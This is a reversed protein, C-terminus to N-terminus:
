RAILTGGSASTVTTNAYGTKKATVTVTLYKGKDAAVVKYTAAIAGSITTTPGSSSDARKWVYTFTVGANPNWGTTVATLTSGVTKIGTITPAPSSTFPLGLVVATTAGPSTVTTFGARTATVTVTLTTGIDASAPTYTALSGIVSTSGSRKWSYALTAGTAWSGAAAILPKGVQATGTITPAVPNAFVGVAVAASPDSRVVANTYGARSATVSVILYKGQDAAVPTYTNATGLITNSGVQRWAYAFTAEEQWTGLNATLRQGVQATGSITPTPPSKFTGPAVTATVASTVATSAYGAREATATVFITAGTEAATPVFTDDTGLVAGTDSRKWVYTVTTPTPSWTWWRTMRATLTRGVKAVGSITPVRTTAFPTMSHITAIGWPEMGDSWAATTGGNLGVAIQPNGGRRSVDNLTVADSWVGGNHSNRMQIMSPPEGPVGSTWVAVARGASDVAIQAAYSANGEGGITMPTSWTGGNLSTSVRIVGYDTGSEAGTWVATALGSGSVAIQPEWSVHTPDSVTEPTSWNGGNQSTSSQIVSQNGDISRWVVTALGTASVTSQPGGGGGVSQSPDSVLKPASWDGGNQSTSSEIVYTESFTSPDYSNTRLWFATALGTASVTIESGFSVENPDSVL